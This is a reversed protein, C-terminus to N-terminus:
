TGADLISAGIFGDPGPANEKPMDAIAHKVEEGTIEDELGELNFHPYDLEDWNLTIECSHKTGLLEKFHRSIEKEKDEHSFALGQTTHLLQIHKKRKRGNARLYFLKTNTDKHKINTLRSRQRARVKELALLGLFIEKIRARFDIENQSPSAM